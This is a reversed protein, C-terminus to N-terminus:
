EIRIAEEINMMAIDDFIRIDASRNVLCFRKM